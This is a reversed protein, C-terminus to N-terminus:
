QCPGAGNDVCRFTLCDNYARWELRVDAPADANCGQACAGISGADGGNSTICTNTCADLTACKADELCTATEACCQAELCQSCAASQVPTAIGCQGADNADPQADIGPSADPAPTVDEAAAEVITSVDPAVGADAAAPTNDSSCAVLAVFPLACGVLSMIRRATM